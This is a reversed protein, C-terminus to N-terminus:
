VLSANYLIVVIYLVQALKLEQWPGIYMGVCFCKELTRALASAYSGNVSPYFVIIM